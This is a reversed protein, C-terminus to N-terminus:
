QTTIWKKVPNKNAPIRRPKNVSSIWAPMCFVWCSSILLIGKHLISCHEQPLYRVRIKSHCTKITYLQRVTTCDYLRVTRQAFYNRRPSGNWKKEVPVIPKELCINFMGSNLLLGVLRWSRFYYAKRSILVFCRRIQTESFKSM